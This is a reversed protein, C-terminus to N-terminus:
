KIRWSAFVESKLPNIHVLYSSISSILHFSKILQCMIIDGGPAPTPTPAGPKPTPTPTTGPKPTPTPTTGPKPTPTPTAGPQPCKTVNPGQNPCGSPCTGTHNGNICTCSSGDPKCCIKYNGGKACGSDLCLGPQLYQTNKCSDATSCKLITWGKWNYIGGVICCESAYCYQWIGITGCKSSCSSSRCCTNPPSGLANKCETSYPPYCYDAFINDPVLLFLFVFAFFLFIIFILKKRM